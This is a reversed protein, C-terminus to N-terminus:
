FRVIITIFSRIKFVKFYFKANIIVKFFPNPRTEDMIPELITDYLYNIRYNLHIRSLIDQNEIEVVKKFAIEETM